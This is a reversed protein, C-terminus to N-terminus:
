TLDLWSHIFKYCISQLSLAYKLSISVPRFSQIFFHMSFDDHKPLIIKISHDDLGNFHDSHEHYIGKLSGSPFPFADLLRSVKWLDDIHFKYEYLIKWSFFLQDQWQIQPVDILAFLNRSYHFLMSNYNIQQMWHFGRFFIILFRKGHGRFAIM